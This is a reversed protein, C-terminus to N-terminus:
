KAVACIRDGYQLETGTRTCVSGQMDMVGVILNKVDELPLDRPIDRILVQADARALGQERGLSDRV